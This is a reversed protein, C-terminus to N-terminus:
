LRSPPTQQSLDLTIIRINQLGSEILKQHLSIDMDMKSMSPLSFYPGKFYLVCYLGYVCGKARMYAPLQKILGKGIAKSHAPKFEICVSINEGMKLTGTVLFDLNGGAIPHEPYIQFNKAQAINYLLGHITSHIDPEHKPKRSIIKLGDYTFDWFPPYLGITMIMDQIALISSTVVEFFHEKNDYIKLPAISEKRAWELLSNPPLTIPTILKVKRREIEAIHENKDPTSSIFEGYTEDLIILSLEQPSWIAYCRIIGSPKLIPIIPLELRKTNRQIYFSNNSFGIEITYEKSLLRFLFGAKNGGIESFATTFVITGSAAIIDSPTVHGRLLPAIEITVEEQKIESKIGNDVSNGQLWARYKDTDICYAIACNILQTDNQQQIKLYISQLFSHNKPNIINVINTTEVGKEIPITERVIFKNLQSGIRISLGFKQALEQLVIIPEVTKITIVLEPLIKFALDVFISNDQIRTCVLLCYDKKDIVVRKIYFGLILEDLVVRSESEPNDLVQQVLEKKIGFNEAVEHNFIDSFTVNM